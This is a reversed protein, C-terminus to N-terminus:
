MAPLGPVISAGARGGVRSSGIRESLSSLPQKEM